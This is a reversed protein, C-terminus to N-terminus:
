MVKMNEPVQYELSITGDEEKKWSVHITGKPTFVDGKAWTMYGPNPRIYVKEYGPAAPAVGLVVTPLEYLALAGWAHCDSRKRVNDEVCTTLNERIMERWLEWCNETKEYLGAKELARYLYFAMAVSCQAYADPNELTKELNARGQEKSLTDTLLAFVQVHQSYQSFGPGDMLMGETDMCYTRIAERVKEARLRYEKAVSSRGLYAMVDAAADLGYIYLLSEMTVPGYLNATPVGSTDRWQTTWDIFSWYRSAGNVGGNKGVLGRADLNRDFYELIGDMASMHRRLFAQDGFYMMHDKLMLIYYVSFGPIINPTTNPFACNIMGDDRVSRRFDDMCKRALRDDGAVAYTYLIQSRSDMAYQLQEYFPCDEYTEHMCNQLTRLSIDWIPLLTEDSVKVHTKVELPYGTQLYDFGSIVLPEEKTRVKLQVFRFTRFWFPEYNETLNEKGYGDVLYTDTFGHLHGGTFDCRDGKEPVSSLYDKAKPDASKNIVYSEATLIDIKAGAGGAMRLSLYGTTEEGANLEVIEETNAPIVVRGEGHLLKEWKSAKHVSKRITMVNQFNRPQKKMSPITRPSLNGPSVAQSIASSFYPVASEWERDDFGALKWGAMASDGRRKELIMLPAFFVSESVIEFDKEEMCKWSSDASIGIGEAADVSVYDLETLPTPFHLEQKRDVVEALYLGPIETRYMGFNGSRVETPYRLVEVALVNKGEKLRSSLEATDVYWTLRDGKVPGLETLEGNVYLKYRTDASIRIKVSEPVKELSFEKRFYVLHPVNQNKERWGPIWIWNSYLKKAGMNKM